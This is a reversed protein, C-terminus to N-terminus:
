PGLRVPLPRGSGPTSRPPEDEWVGPIEESCVPCASGRMRNEEVLFGFRRILIEGCGHCYTNELDGVSGSRNGAYVYRLGATKGIEAARLLDRVSTHGRDNLHYDPHFATVHWPMLPDVDALFEAMARLEGDSDNLGPVLLTVIEVWFDLQKLRRITELVKTLKGGLERYTEERFSKLDVKFLRVYPRIYDLVEASAHGNSVFAGTIGHVAGHKLIEVAWEATILPENYSSAIVPAGARVAAAAIEESRCPQFAVEAADERLAQSTFWNQCYSCKLDCGLMGFTLADRAPFAHFFPKKEIPDCALGSVYGSPRQLVGGRVFRVRCIGSAGEGLRCGHACALCEIRGEGFRRTLEAASPATM